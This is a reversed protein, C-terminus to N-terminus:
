GSVKRVTEAISAVAWEVAEPDHGEAMIRLLPETGSYRVVLRGESGLADAAVRLARVLDPDREFDRREKVRVNRLIQPYRPTERRLVDLPRALRRSAQLIRVGAVLGDGILAGERELVVHGSPEGGLTAGTARMREAVNRDGVPVRDLVVGLDALREELGLNAMVTGVVREGPLAGRPLADQALIALADDGDLVTGEADALLVRDADGDFALGAEAGDARLAALWATPHQTGCGDNIAREGAGHLTHVEAGLAGLVAAATASAAGASLDVVLRLRDLGGGEALWRATAEVYRAAGDGPSPPGAEPATPEAERMWAEVRKEEEVTLKRGGRAFPKIGNYESPNHSASVVVGLDLRDHVVAWAVAPTPLVGLDVAPAGEARMADALRAVLRPGSPRPDCGLAIRPAGGAGEAALRALARGARVVHGPALRGEGAVDRIGDTGFFEM